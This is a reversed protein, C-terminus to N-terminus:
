VVFEGKIGIHPSDVLGTKRWCSVLKEMSLIKTLMDSGNDDTHINELAFENEDM